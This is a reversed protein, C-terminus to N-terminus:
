STIIARDLIMKLTELDNYLEVLKHVDELSVTGNKAKIELRKLFLNLDHLRDELAEKLKESMEIEM